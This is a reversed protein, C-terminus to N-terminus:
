TANHSTCGNGSGVMRVEGDRVVIADYHAGAAEDGLLEEHSSSVAGQLLTNPVRFLINFFRLKHVLNIIIDIYYM